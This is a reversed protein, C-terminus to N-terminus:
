NSSERPLRLAGGRLARLVEQYIDDRSGSEHWGVALIYVLVKAQEIRIVARFRGVHLSRYGALPSQLEQTLGFPDRQLEELAAQIQLMSKRGHRKLDRLNRKAHDTLLVRYVM